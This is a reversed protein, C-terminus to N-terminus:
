DSHGIYGYSKPDDEDTNEDADCLFKKLKESWMIYTGGLVPDSILYFLRGQPFKPTFIKLWSGATDVDGPADKDNAMTKKMTAYAEPYDRKVDAKTLEETHRRTGQAVRVKKGTINALHQLAANTSAFRLESM